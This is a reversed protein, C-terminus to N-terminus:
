LKFLTLGTYSRPSGDLTYTGTGNLRVRGSGLVNLDFKAAHLLLQFPSTGNYLFKVPRLVIWAGVPTRRACRRHLPNPKVCLLRLASGDAAILRIRGASVRVAWATAPGTTRV